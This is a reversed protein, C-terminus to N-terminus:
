SDSCKRKPWILFVKYKLNRCQLMTMCVLFTKRLHSTCYRGELWKNVLHERCWRGFARCTWEFVKGLWVVAIQQGRTGGEVNRVEVGKRGESGGKARRCGVIVSSNNSKIQSGRGKASPPTLQGLQGLFHQLPFNQFAFLLRSCWARLSGFVLRLM